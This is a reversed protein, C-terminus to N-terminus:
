TVSEEPSKCTRPPEFGPYSAHNVEGGNNTTAIAVTCARETQRAECGFRDGTLLGETAPPFPRFLLLGVVGRNTSADWKAYCLMLHSQIAWTHLLLFYSLTRLRQRSVAM